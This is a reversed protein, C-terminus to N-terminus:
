GIAGKTGGVGKEGLNAKSGAERGAGSGAAGGKIRSGTRRVNHQQHMWSDVRQERDALVLGTGPSRDAVQAERRERLRRGVETAFSMMFHRREKYGQWSTLFDRMEYESWWEGLASHAQLELSNLLMEAREVDSKHGILYATRQKTGTAALVRLSGLGQAVANVFNPMVEKFLGEYYREVQTIDDGDEENLEAVDIGWQVMLDEAKKTALEAEHANSSEALRLLKEIRNKMSTSM